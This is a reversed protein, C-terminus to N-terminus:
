EALRAALTVSAGPRIGFPTSRGSGAQGVLSEASACNARARALLRAARKCLSGSGGGAQMRAGGVRWGRCAGLSVM